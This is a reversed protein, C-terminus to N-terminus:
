SSHHSALPRSCDRRCASHWIEVSTRWEPEHTTLWQALSQGSLFDAVIFCRGADHGIDFVSVIGPHNLQALQRAEKLFETEAVTSAEGFKAVKIAVQRRLTEDEALYVAGFGGRGLLRLIRYRGLREIPDSRTDGSRSEIGGVASPSMTSSVHAPNREAATDSHADGRSHPQSDDDDWGSTTDNKRPTSPRDSNLLPVTDSLCQRRRNGSEHRHRCRHGM